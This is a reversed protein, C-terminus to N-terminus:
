NRGCSCGHAESEEHWPFKESYGAMEWFFKSRPKNNNGVENMTNADFLRGNSMTYMVSNTNQINELPNKDLVIIDALKGVKLSGLQEDLGLYTAGNITGTKLVDIPKMGGQAMMWLEWHMGLGQLQGHAGANIKVGANSLDNCVKSTLIHGM